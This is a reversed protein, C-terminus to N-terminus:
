LKKLAQRYLKLAQQLHGAKMHADGLLRLSDVDDRRDEVISELDSIVDDLVMNRRILEDYGSRAASMDEVQVWARAMDLLAQADDPNARLRAMISEIDATPPPPATPAPKRVLRKPAGRAPAPAPPPALPEPARAAEHVPAAPVPAPKLVVTVQAGPMVETFPVTAVEPTLQEPAAEVPGEEDELTQYWWDPGAAGTIPQRGAPVAEAPEQEATVQGLAIAPEVAPLEPATLATEAAVAPAVQEVPWEAASPTQVLAQWDPQAEPLPAVQTEAAEMAAPEALWESISEPFAPGAEEGAQTPPLEAV